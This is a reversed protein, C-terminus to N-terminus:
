WAAREHHATDTVAPPRHQQSGKEHVSTTVSAFCMAGKSAGVGSHRGLSASVLRIVQTVLSGTSAPVPDDWYTNHSGVSRTAEPRLAIGTRSRAPRLRFADVARVRLLSSYM